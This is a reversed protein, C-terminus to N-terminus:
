QKKREWLWIVSSLVSFLICIILFINDPNELWKDFTEFYKAM